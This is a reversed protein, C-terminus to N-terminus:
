AVTKEFWIQALIIKTKYEFHKEIEPRIKKRKCARRPRLVLGEGIRGGISRICKTTSL